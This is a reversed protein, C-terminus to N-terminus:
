LLLHEAGKDIMVLIFWHNTMLFCSFDLHFRKGHGIATSTKDVIRCLLIEYSIFRLGLSFCVAQFIIVVNYSPVPKNSSEINFRRFPVTSIVDIDFKSQGKQEALRCGLIM